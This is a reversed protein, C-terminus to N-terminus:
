EDVPEIAYGMKQLRSLIGDDGYALAADVGVAVQANSALVQKDLLKSWSELTEARAIRFFAVLNPDGKCAINLRLERATIYAGMNKLEYADQAWESLNSLAKWNENISLVLKAADSTGLRKWQAHGQAVSGLSQRSFARGQPAPPDSDAYESAFSYEGLRARRIAMRADEDVKALMWEQGYAGSGLSISADNALMAAAWPKLRNFMKATVFVGYEKDYGIRTEMADYADEGLYHVLRRETQLDAMDKDADLMEKSNQEAYTMAIQRGTIIADSERAAKVAADSLPIRRRARPMCALLYSPRGGPKSIKWLTTPTALRKINDPDRGRLDIWRDPPTQAMLANREDILSRSEMKDELSQACGGALIACVALAAIAPAARVGRARPAPSDPARAGARPSIAASRKIRGDPNLSKDCAM